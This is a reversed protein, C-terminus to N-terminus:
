KVDGLIVKQASKIFIAKHGREVLNEKFPKINAGEFPGRCGICHLQSDTCVSGCGMRTLPGLCILGSDLLCPNENERCETCVPLAKVKPKTGQIIHSLVNRLDKEDIPCGRVEFDVAVHKCLPQAKMAAQMGGTCACSGLAVLIKNKSRTQSLLEKDANGSVSGEVFAIDKPFDPYDKMVNVLLQSCGKCCSLSCPEIM